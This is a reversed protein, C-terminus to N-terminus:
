DGEELLKLDLRLRRIEDVLVTVIEISGRHFERNEDSEGAIEDCMERAESVIDRNGRIGM